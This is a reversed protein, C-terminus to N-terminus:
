ARSTLKPRASPRVKVSSIVRGLTFANANYCAVTCGVLAMWVTKGKAYVVGNIEIDGAGPVIVESRDDSGRLGGSSVAVPKTLSVMTPALGLQQQLSVEGDPAIQYADNAPPAASAGTTVSAMFWPGPTESFAYNSPPNPVGDLEPPEAGAIEVYTPYPVSLFGVKALNYENEVQWTSPLEYSILGTNDSYQAWKHATVAAAPPSAVGMAILSGAAAAVLSVKVRGFVDKRNTGIVVAPRGESRTGGDGHTDQRSMILTPGPPHDLDGAAM